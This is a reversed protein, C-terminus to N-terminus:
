QPRYFLYETTYPVRAEQGVSSGPAAPALGGVTNLRQIYTVRHFLGPGNAVASLLLWPVANPDPTCRDIVTGVVTGGSNSEWTPGAYHTGVVGSGGADATLSASPGDFSWSAGNWTYIQVGAAYVHAALKTGRPAALNQCSGLDPARVANRASSPAASLEPVTRPGVPADASCATALAAIVAVVASRGMWQRESKRM